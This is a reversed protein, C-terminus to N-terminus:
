LVKNAQRRKRKRHIILLKTNYIYLKRKQLLLPIKNNLFYVFHYLIEKNKDNLNIQKTNKSKVRKCRNISCIDRILLLTILIIPVKM